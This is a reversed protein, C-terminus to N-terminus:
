RLSLISCQQRHSLAAALTTTRRRDHSSGRRPMLAIRQSDRDLRANTRLVQSLEGNTVFTRLARRPNGAPSAAAVVGLSRRRSARPSQTNGEIEESSVVPTNSAVDHAERLHPKPPTATAEAAPGWRLALVCEHGISLQSLRHVLGPTYPASRTQEGTAHAAARQESWYAADNTSRRARLPKWAVDRGSRM